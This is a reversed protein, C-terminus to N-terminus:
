TSVGKLPTPALRLPYASHHVVVPQHAFIAACIIAYVILGEINWLPMTALNLILFGLLSFFCKKRLTVDAIRWASRLLAANFVGFLTLGLIGYEYLYSIFTNHAYKEFVGNWAEPGAGFWRQSADAMEWASLYQSWLYVRASFLDQEWDTFYVPAKILERWHSAVVYIDNFREAVSDKFMWAVAVASTALAAISFFQYRKAVKSEFWSFLFIVVIPLVALMSTRYNTLFLLVVGIFFLSNQWPFSRLNQLCISLVFGVLIMSFAAEHHYGGIFSVSGDSEAAKAEGLVISLCQLSVPLVFSVLLARLVPDLGARRIALFLAGALVMFYLWKVVVVIFGGVQANIAASLVVILAFAYFLLWYRLLFLQRPLLSFGAAVVFISGIANISLGGVLPPYTVTHFASLAFRLWLAVMVFVTFGECRRAVRYLLVASLLVLAIKVIEFM